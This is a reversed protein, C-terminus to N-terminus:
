HRTQMWGEGGAHVPTMGLPASPAQMFAKVSGVLEIMERVGLNRLYAGMEQYTDRMVTHEVSRFAAIILLEDPVLSQEDGFILKTFTDVIAMESIASSGTIASAASLSFGKGKHEM